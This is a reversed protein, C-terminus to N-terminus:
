ADVVTWGSPIGSTGTTWSSMNPSKVFTGTAAVGDLWTSTCSSASINTALCKVYNLVTCGNFMSYYCNRGLTEAPLVPATTLNKCQYFLTRYCTSRLTTAPMILNGASVIKCGRFLFAFTYAFNKLATHGAFFEGYQLSMINGSVNFKGTSSFHSYVSSSTAFTDADSKWLVRGGVPIAPTTIVVNSSSNQVSTWTKGNDTSYSVGPVQTETVDAPITLTFTGTELAEFTLYFKSYDIPTPPTPTGGCIVNARRILISSMQKNSINKTLM